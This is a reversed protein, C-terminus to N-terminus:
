GGALIGAAQFQLSHEAGICIALAVIGAMPYGATTLIYFATAGGVELVTATLGKLDFIDERVRRGHFYSVAATHKLHMMVLLLATAFGLGGGEIAYIWTFWLLSESFLVVGTKLLVPRIKGNKRPYAEASFVVLAALLAFEVSEGAVLAGYAAFYYERHLFNTGSHSAASKLPRQPSFHSLLADM